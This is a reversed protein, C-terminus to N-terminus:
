DYIKHTCSLKEACRMIASRARINQKIEEFTPTLKGINKFRCMNAYLSLIQTETLPLKPLATVIRSNKYIFRKILRDELSNFSIVVLRGKPSLLTLINQLMKIIEELEKNIYIRIALFSRTAPHKKQNYKYYYPISDGIIKSLQLSRLIPRVQRNLVIAKAIKKSFKEEGLTRLVWEINNISATNLWESASQGINVDMRMDLFGDKMFSFGRNSDFLQSECIGLDLLIGNISGVLNMNQLYKFMKSFPAHVMFFRRDYEAILKGVKVSLWDKDMAILRGHKNLKSLIMKSHGGLGFTGDVYIGDPCINLAEISENLLVSKHCIM